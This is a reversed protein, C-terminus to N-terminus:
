WKPPLPEPTLVALWLMDWGRVFHRGIGTWSSTPWKILRSDSVLLNTFALHGTIKRLHTRRLLQLKTINATSAASFLRTQGSCELWLSTLVAGNNSKPVAYLHPRHIIQAIGMGAPVNWARHIRRTPVYAPSIIELAM